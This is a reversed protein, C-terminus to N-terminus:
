LQDIQRGMGGFIGNVAIQRVLNSHSRLVSFIPSYSTLSVVVCFSFVRFTLSSSAPRAFFDMSIQIVRISNIKFASFEIHESQHIKALM